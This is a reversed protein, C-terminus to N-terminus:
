FKGGKFVKESVKDGDRSMRISFGDRGRYSKEKEAAARLMKFFLVAVLFSRRDM